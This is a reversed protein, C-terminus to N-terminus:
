LQRAGKRDDHPGETLGTEATRSSAGKVWDGANLHIGSEDRGGSVTSVQGRDAGKM